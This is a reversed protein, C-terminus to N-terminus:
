QCTGFAAQCGEGCHGDTSGCWGYASCCDGFEAGLCTVGNGCSGDVSPPLGSGGCTGHAPQCGEGCHGDTSGCYGYASCCNGFESGQCTVGDGCSGDVSIAQGNGPTTCEGFAAQCGAGCYASTSGCYGSSSCCNGFASGKCTVGNGCPGDVSVVLTASATAPSTTTKTGTTTGTKTTTGTRTTTGVGVPPTFTVTVGPAGTTTASPNLAHDWDYRPRVCYARGVVVRADCGAADPGLATNVKLFLDVAIQSGLCMRACGDGAAAVWWLGCQRTTGAPVVAGAPPDVAAGSTYGDQTTPTTTDNAALGTGVDFEGLPAGLCIVHGYVPVTTNFDRCEFGFWPNLRVIDGPRLNNTTNAELAYCEEITTGQVTLTRTCSPPLCLKTGSPIPTTSACNPLRNQNALYLSASSITHQTAIADCTTQSTTTYWADTPCDDYPSAPILYRPPQIATPKNTIGCRSYVYELDSKWQADYFSYPSRQMMALREVYCFSCIESTPM